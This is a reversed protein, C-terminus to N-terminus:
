CFKLLVANTDAVANAVFAFSPHSFSNASKTSVSDSKYRGFRVSYIEKSLPSSFFM